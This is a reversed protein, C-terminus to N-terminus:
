SGACHGDATSAHGVRMAHSVGDSGDCYPGSPSSRLGGRQVRRRFSTRSQLLLDLARRDEGESSRTLENTFAPVKALSSSRSASTILPMACPRIRNVVCADGSVKM